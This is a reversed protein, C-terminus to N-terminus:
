ACWKARRIECDIGRLIHAQGYQKQLQKVSIM